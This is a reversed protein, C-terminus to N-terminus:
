ESKLSSRDFFLILSQIFILGKLLILDPPPNLLGLGSEQHRRKQPRLDSVSVLSGLGLILSLPGVGRVVAVFVVHPM